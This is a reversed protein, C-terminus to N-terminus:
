ESKFSFDFGECILLLQSFEAVSFLRAVFVLPVERPLFSFVAVPFLFVVLSVLLPIYVTFIRFYGHVIIGGFDSIMLLPPYLHLVSSVCKCNLSQCSLVIEYIYLSM